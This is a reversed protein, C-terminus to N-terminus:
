KSKNTVQHKSKPIENVSIAHTLAVALADATNELARAVAVAGHGYANSKIVAMNRSGPSLEAAVKLNNKIASLSVTARTARV